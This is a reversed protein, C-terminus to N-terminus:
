ARVSGNLRDCGHIDENSRNWESAAARMMPMDAMM